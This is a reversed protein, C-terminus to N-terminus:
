NYQFEINTQEAIKELLVLIKGNNNKKVQPCSSTEYSETDDTLSFVQPEKNLLYKKKTSNDYISGLVCIITDKKVASSPHGEFYLDNGILLTTNKIGGSTDGFTATGGVYITSDDLGGNINGFNADGTIYLLPNYRVHKKSTNLTLSGNVIATKGEIDYPYDTIGPTYSCNSIIGLNKDYNCNPLIPKSIMEVNVSDIEIDVNDGTPNLTVLNNEINLQITSDIDISQQEQVYGTSKFEIIIKNDKYEPKINEIKYEFIPNIDDPILKTLSKSVFFKNMENNDYMEKLMIKLEEVVDTAAITLQKDSPRTKNLLQIKNEARNYANPAMSTLVNHVNNIFANKYYIVGMEAIDVAQMEQETKTVQKTNSISLSIIAIGVISFVTIILLVTVLAMGSKNKCYNM